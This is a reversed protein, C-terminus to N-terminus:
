KLKEEEIYRLLVENCNKCRRVIKIHDYPNNTLHITSHYWTNAKLEHIGCKCKGNGYIAPLEIEKYHTVGQDDLITKPPKGSKAYESSAALSSLILEMEINRM